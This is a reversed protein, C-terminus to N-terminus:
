KIAKKKIVEMDTFTKGKMRFKIFIFVLERFLRKWGQPGFLYFLIKLKLGSCKNKTFFHLDVDNTYFSLNLKKAIEELTEKTFFSIHQGHEQGYYWWESFSPVEDKKFLLTSILVNDSYSLMEELAPIPEEFHELTEFSTILSYRDDEKEFGRSFLNSTYKDNWYFDFGVDRMLRTFVGYGGAYDLFKGKIPVFTCLITVIKSLYVNRGLLGIDSDNISNAYAENLWYAKETSLHFCKRCFFYSVNYKNLLKGEFVKSKESDCIACKLIFRM